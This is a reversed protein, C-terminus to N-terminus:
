DNGIMKRGLEAIFDAIRNAPVDLARGLGADLVHRVAYTITEVRKFKGNKM